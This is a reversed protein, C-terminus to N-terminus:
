AGAGAATANSEDSGNPADAEGPQDDEDADDQGAEDPEPGPDTVEGGERELRLLEKLRHDRDREYALAGDIFVQDVWSDFELPDGSFVVINARKGPEISGLDSEVGLMRAPYLTISKLAVERSLGERVCVAAQYTLYREAMSAGPNPQLAFTLGAEYVKRPVFVEELEGTMPNRTRHYLAPDLVVPRDAQKLEEVARHAESGLVFVANELIDLDRALAIAPGVDTARGAYFWSALDGRLLRALPLQRDSYDSDRILDRGRRRAEEPGVDITEDDEELSEEYKEEALRDVEYEFRKFAERLEYMQSIRGAGARPSTVLKLGIEPVVTMEDVSLGIPRVVRSKASIVTNNGQMVHVTTVGDRLSNEFFLRSPDIADYVDLFPVVPISENARDLGRYSQPDIMGPMLVKGTVDVEMADYPLEVDEGVEVIRGDEILVTGEEIEEGTVTIIRGGTLALSDPPAAVAAATLAGALAAALGASRSTM